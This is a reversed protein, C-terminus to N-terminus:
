RIIYPVKQLCNCSYGLIGETNCISCKGILNNDHTFKQLALKIAELQNIGIYSAEATTKELLIRLDDVKSPENAIIKGALRTLLPDGQTYTVIDMLNVYSMMMKKTSFIISITKFFILKKEM